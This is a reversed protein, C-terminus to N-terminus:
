RYGSFKSLMLILDMKALCKLFMSCIKGKILQYQSFYEPRVPLAISHFPGYIFYQLWNMNEWYVNDLEIHSWINNM